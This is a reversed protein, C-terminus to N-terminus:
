YDFPNRKNPNLGTPRKRAARADDRQTETRPGTNGPALQPQFPQRGFLSLQEPKDGGVIGSVGPELVPGGLGPRKFGRQSVPLQTPAQPAPADQALRGVMNTGFQDAKQSWQPTGGWAQANQEPTATPQVKATQRPTAPGVPNQAGTSPAGLGGRGRGKKAVGGLMGEIATGAAQNLAKGQEKAEMDAIHQNAFNVQDRYLLYNGYQGTAQQAIAGSRSFNVPPKWSSAFSRGSGSSVRGVSVRKAPGPMQM